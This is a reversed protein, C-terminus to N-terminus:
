FTPQPYGRFVPNLDAFLDETLSELVAPPAFDTTGIGRVSIIRGSSILSFSAEDGPDAYEGSIYRAGAGGSDTRALTGGQHWFGLYDNAKVEMVLGAITQYGSGMGEITVSNRCRWTSGSVLYFLGIKLQTPATHFFVQFSTIWGDISAPSALYIYTYGSPSASPRSIPDSGLIIDAM